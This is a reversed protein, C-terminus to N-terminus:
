RNSRGAPIVFLHRHDIAAFAKGTVLRYPKKAAVLMVSPSIASVCKTSKHTKIGSAWSLLRKWMFASLVLM